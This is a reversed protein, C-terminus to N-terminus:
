LLWGVGTIKSLGLAILNFAQPGSPVQVQLSPIEGPTWLGRSFQFSEIEVPSLGGGSVPTNVNLTKFRGAQIIVTRKTVAVSWGYTQGSVPTSLSEIIAGANCFSDVVFSYPILEWLGIPVEAWSLGFHQLASSVGPRVSALRTSGFKTMYVEKKTIYLDAVFESAGFGNPIVCQFDTKSSDAGRTPVGQDTAQTLTNTLAKQANGLDSIIPSWGYCWELWGNSKEKLDQKFTKHRVGTKRAIALRRNHPLPISKKRYSLLGEM